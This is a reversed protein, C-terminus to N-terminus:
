IANVSHKYVSKMNLVAKEMSRTGNIHEWSSAPMLGGPAKGCFCVGLDYSKQRGPRPGWVLLGVAQVLLGVPTETFGSSGPPYM